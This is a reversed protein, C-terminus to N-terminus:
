ARRNAMASAVEPQDILERIFAAPAQVVFSGLNRFTNHKAAAHGVAVEVRGLLRDIVKQIEEPPVRLTKAESPRLYVVAEIPHSLDKAAELQRLLEPDLKKELNLRSM